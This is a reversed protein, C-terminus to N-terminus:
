AEPEEKYGDPYDKDFLELVQRTNPLQLLQQCIMTHNVYGGTLDIGIFRWQEQEMGDVSSLETVTTAKDINLMDQLKPYTSVVDIDSVHTHLLPQHGEMDSVLDVDAEPGMYAPLTVIWDRLGPSFDDIETLMQDSTTGIINGRKLGFFHLDDAIMKPQSDYNRYESSKLLAGLSMSIDKTAEDLEEVGIDDYLNYICYEVPFYKQMFAHWEKKIFGDAEMFKLKPQLKHKRLLYDLSYEPENPLATRIRKYLLMSDCIVFSAQTKCTHWQDIPNIPYVTNKGGDKKVKTADGQDWVFNRFERPVRPDCFVDSPDYGSDKLAQVSKPIDFVMNFITVYDPQWEHAAKFCGQVVQAPLEHREIHMTMPDIGRRKLVDGLLEEAKLRVLHIFNAKDEDSLVSNHIFDETIHMSAKEKCTISAVIIAEEESNMDTEIDYVAVKAPTPTKPWRDKYGRKVLVPTTIDAGYLYPSRALQRLSGRMGPNGLARAVKNHLEHQACTFKRVQSLPAWPRKDKHTRYKDLTVYFDRQYNKILRLWPLPPRGDKFHILEKVVVVDNASGNNAKSYSASMCEYYDIEERDPMEPYMFAM